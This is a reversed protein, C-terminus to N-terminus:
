VSSLNSLTIKTQHNNDNQSQYVTTADISGTTGNQKIFANM